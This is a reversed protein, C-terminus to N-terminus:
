PKGSMGPGHFIAQSSTHMLLLRYVSPNLTSATRWTVSRPNSTASMAPRRPTVVCVQVCPDLRESPRTDHLPGLEVLAGSDADIRGRTTAAEPRIRNTNGAPIPAAAM